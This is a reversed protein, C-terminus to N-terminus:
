HHDVDVQEGHELSAASTSVVLLGCLKNCNSSFNRGADSVHTSITQGSEDLRLLCEARENASHAVWAEGELVRGCEYRVCLVVSFACRAVGETFELHLLRSNPRVLTGTM